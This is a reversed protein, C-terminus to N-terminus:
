ATAAETLNQKKIKEVLTTRKINLVKAAKTKIWSSRELAELMLRKEYDKVAEDLTLGEELID